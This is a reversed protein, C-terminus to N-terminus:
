LLLLDTPVSLLLTRPLHCTGEPRSTIVIRNGSPVLEYHVFSEIIDRM